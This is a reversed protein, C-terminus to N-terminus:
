FLNYIDKMKNKIVENRMKDENEQVLNLSWRKDPSAVLTFFKGIRFKFKFDDTQFRKVDAFNTIEERGAVKSNKEITKTIFTKFNSWDIASPPQKSFTIQPLSKPGDKIDQKAFYVITSDSLSVSLDGSGRFAGYIKKFDEDAKDLPTTNNDTVKTSKTYHYKILIDFAKKEDMKPDKNIEVLLNKYDVLGLFKYAYLGQGQLKQFILLVERGSTTVIDFVGYNGDNATQGQKLGVRKWWNVEGDSGGSSLEPTTNLQSDPPLVGLNADTFEDYKGRWAIDSRVLSIPDLGAPFRGSEDSFFPLYNSTVKKIKKQWNNGIKAMDPETTTWNIRNYVGSRKDAYKGDVSSAGYQEDYLWGARLQIEKIAEKNVLIVAKKRLEPNDIFKKMIGKNDLAGFDLKGYAKMMDKEEPTMKLDSLISTLNTDKNLGMQEPDEPNHLYVKIKNVGKEVANVVNTAATKINNVVGPKTKPKPPNLVVAENLFNLFEVVNKNHVFIDFRTSEFQPEYKHELYPFKTKIQEKFSKWGKLMEYTSDTVDKLSADTLWTDVNNQAEKIKEKSEEKTDPHNLLETFIKKAEERYLTELLKLKSKDVQVFKDPMPESNGTAQIQRNDPVQDKGPVMILQVFAKGEPLAEKQKDDKDQAGSGDTLYLNNEGPTVVNTLSLLRVIANEGKDNTYLYLAGVKLDGSPPPPPTGVLVTVTYTNTLEGNTVTHTVAATYDQEVDTAPEVTAGDSCTITPIFKKSETGEPVTLKITKEEQNIVGIINIAKFDYATIEAKKTDTEPAKPAAKKMICFYTEEETQMVGKRDNQGQITIVNIDDYSDYGKLGKFSSKDDGALEAPIQKKSDILQVNKYHPVVLYMFDEDKFKEPTEFYFVKNSYTAKQWTQIVKLLNQVKRDSGPLAEQKGKKGPMANISEWESKKLLYVDIMLNVTEIDNVEVKSQALALMVGKLYTKELKGQLDKLVVNATLVKGFSFIKNVARGLLSESWGIRNSMNMSEYIMDYSQKHNINEYIEDYTKITKFEKSSLVNKM